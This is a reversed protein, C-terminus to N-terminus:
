GGGVASYFNRNSIRTAKSSEGPFVYALALLSCPSTLWGQDFIDERQYVLNVIRSQIEPSYEAAEMWCAINAAARKIVTVDATYCRNGSIRRCIREEDVFERDRRKFHVPVINLKFTNLIRTLDEDTFGIGLDVSNLSFLATSNSKWYVEPLLYHALGKARAGSREKFEVCQDVDAMYPWTYSNNPLLTFCAKFFNSLKELSRKLEATETIRYLEVLFTAFISVHNLAEPRGDAQRCTVYEEDEKCSGNHGVHFQYLQESIRVVAHLFDEGEGYDRYMIRAAQLCPRLLLGTTTIETSFVTDQQYSVLPSIWGHPSVKGLYEYGVAISSTKWRKAIFYRCADITLDLFRKEGTKQYAVNAALGIRGWHWAVIRPARWRQPHDDAMLAKNRLTNQALERYLQGPTVEDEKPGPFLSIFTAAESFELPIEGAQQSTVPPLM